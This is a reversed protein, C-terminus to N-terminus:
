KKPLILEEWRYSNVQFCSIEDPNDNLHFKCYYTIVKPNPILEQKRKIVRLM